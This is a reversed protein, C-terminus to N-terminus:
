QRWLRSFPRYRYIFENGKCTTHLVSCHSCYTVESSFSHNASRKTCSSDQNQIKQLVAPTGRSTGHYIHSIALRECRSPSPPSLNSVQGTWTLYTTTLTAILWTERRTSRNEGAHLMGGICWVWRWSCPVWVLLVIPSCLLTSQNWKKVKKIYSRPPFFTPVVVSYTM